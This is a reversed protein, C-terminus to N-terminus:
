INLEVKIDIFYKNMAKKEPSTKIGMKEWDNFSSAAM